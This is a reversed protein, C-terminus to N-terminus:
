AHLEDLFVTDLPVMKPQTHGLTGRWVSQMTRQNVIYAPPILQYRLNEAYPYEDLSHLMCSSFKPSTLHAELGIANWPEKIM